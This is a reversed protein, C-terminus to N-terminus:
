HPCHTSLCLTLAEQADTLCSSRGGPPPPVCAAVTGQYAAYCAQACAPPTPGNAVSPTILVLALIVTLLCFIKTQNM